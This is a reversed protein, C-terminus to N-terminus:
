IPNPACLSLLCLLLFLPSRTSHHYPDVDAEGGRNRNQRRSMDEHLKSMRVAHGARRKKMDSQMQFVQENRMSRKCPSGSQDLGVAAESTPADCSVKSLPRV